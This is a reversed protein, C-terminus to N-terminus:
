EADENTEEEKDKLVITLKYAETTEVGEPLNFIIDATYAGSQWETIELQEALLDMDVVGIIDSARLSRLDTAIGVVSIHYTDTDKDTFNDIHCELSEPANAIAFNKEPVDFEKIEQPEIDVTVSVNGNFESDAFTTGTPLYKKINVITTMDETKNEIDLASDEITWENVADLANKRGALVVTEPVSVVSGTEMYGSAPEGKIAFKLPVEKTALITVAVNITSINMKISENKQIEVNDSDYLKLEVSTNVDSTYTGAIEVVANVHDIQNIVSEPGSIRVVNQSPTVTGIVYGDAPSGTASTNIVKQVNKVDEISLQLTETSCEFELEANNRVSYAQISLTDLVTLNKMDAVVKIDDRTISDIVSTKGYVYVTVTDSDNLVDYTKGLNTIEKANQIEVKMNTFTKRTVPDTINNVIVWLAISFFLALIKLGMNHTLRSKYKSKFVFKLNHTLKNKM